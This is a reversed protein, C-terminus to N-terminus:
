RGHIADNWLCSSIGPASGGNESKDRWPFNPRWICLFQWVSDLISSFMNCNADILVPSENEDIEWGLSCWNDINFIKTSIMLLLDQPNWFVGVHLTQMIKLWTIAIWLFYLHGLYNLSLPLTWFFFFLISIEMFPRWFQEMSKKLFFPSISNFIFIGLRLYM